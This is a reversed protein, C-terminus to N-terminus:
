VSQRTREWHGASIAVQGELGSLGHHARLRLLDCLCRQGHPCGPSPHHHDVSLIWMQPLILRFWKSEFCDSRSPGFFVNFNFGSMATAVDWCFWIWRCPGWRQDFTALAKPWKALLVVVLAALSFLSTLVNLHRADSQAQCLRNKTGFFQHLQNSGFFHRTLTVIGILPNIVMEWHPFLLAVPQSAARTLTVFKFNLKELRLSLISTSHAAHWCCGHKSWPVCWDYWYIMSSKSFQWKSDIIEHGLFLNRGGQKENPNLSSFPIGWLVRVLPNYIIYWKEWSFQLEPTVWKWIGM